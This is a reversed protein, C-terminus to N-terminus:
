AWWFPTMWRSMLGPFMKMRRLPWTFNRSKPMARMAVVSEPSVRVPRIM